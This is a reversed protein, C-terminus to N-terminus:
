KLSSCTSSNFSILSAIMNWTVQRYIKAGPMWRRWANVPFTTFIRPVGNLTVFDSTTWTFIYLKWFMFSVGKQRQMIRKYNGISKKSQRFYFSNGKTIHCTFNYSNTQIKYNKRGISTFRITISDSWNPRGFPNTWTWNSVFSSASLAM